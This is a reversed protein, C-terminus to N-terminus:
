RARPESGLSQSLRSLMQVVRDYGTRLESYAEQTIYHLDRALMPQYCVEGASGQRYRRIASVEQGGPRARIVIVGMVAVASREFRQCVPMLRSAVFYAHPM